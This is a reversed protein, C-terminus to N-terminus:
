SIAKTQAVMRYRSLIAAGVIPITVFSQLLAPLYLYFASQDIYNAFTTSREFSFNGAFWDVIIIVAGAAYSKRFTTYGKDFNDSLRFFGKAFIILVAASGCLQIFYTNAVLQPRVACEALACHDAYTQYAPWPLILGPWIWNFAAAFVPTLAFFGVLVIASKLSARRAPRIDEPALKLRSELAQM